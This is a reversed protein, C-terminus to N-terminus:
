NVTLGISNASLELTSILSLDRTQSLGGTAILHETAVTDGTEASQFSIVLFWSDVSQSSDSVDFSMKSDNDSGWDGSIDAPSFTSTQRAYSAGVPETTIAGLDSTDAIADTTDNYLGINWTATGSDIGNKVLYEEGIDTLIQGM